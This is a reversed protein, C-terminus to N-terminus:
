AEQIRSYINKINETLKAPIKGNYSEMIEIITITHEYIIKEIDEGEEIAMEIDISTNMIMEICMETTNDIKSM